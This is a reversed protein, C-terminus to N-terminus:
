VGSNAAIAALEDDTLQAAKILVAGGNAGTLEIGQMAKGELRDGLEKLATMDGDLAKDILADALKNLMEKGESKSRKEIAQSIATSWIRNKGANKNGIPAAM